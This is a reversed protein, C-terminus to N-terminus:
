TQLLVALPGLVATSTAPPSQLLVLVCASANLSSKPSANKQIGGQSAKCVVPVGTYNESIFYHLRGEKYCINRNTEKNKNIKKQLSVQARCPHLLQKAVQFLYLSKMKYCM